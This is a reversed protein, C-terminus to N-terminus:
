LWAWSWSLNLIEDENPVKQEELGSFCIQCKWCEANIDIFLWTGHINKPKAKILVLHLCVWLLSAIRDRGLWISISIKWIQCIELEGCGAFKKPKCFVNHMSAIFVRTYIQIRNCQKFALIQDLVALIKSGSISFFYM